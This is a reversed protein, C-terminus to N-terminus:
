EPKTMNALSTTISLTRLSSANQERRLSFHLYSMMCTSAVPPATQLVKKYVCPRVGREVSIVSLADFLVNGLFFLGGGVNTTFYYCPPWFNWIHFRNILNESISFSSLIGFRAEFNLNFLMQGKEPWFMTSFKSFWTNQLNKVPKQDFHPAFTIRNSNQHCIQFGRIM